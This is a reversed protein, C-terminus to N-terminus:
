RILRRSKVRYRIDVFGPKKFLQYLGVKDPDARDKLTIRKRGYLQTSSYFLELNWYNGLFNNSSSGITAFRWLRLIFCAMYHFPNWKDSRIRCSVKEPYKREGENISIFHRYENRRLNIYNFWYYHNIRRRKFKVNYYGLCPYFVFIPTLNFSKDIEYAKITYRFVLLCATGALM